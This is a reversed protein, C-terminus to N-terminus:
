ETFRHRARFVVITLVVLGLGAALVLVASTPGALVATLSRALRGQRQGLINVFFIYVAAASIAAILVLGRVIVSAGPNSISFQLNFFIDMLSTVIFLLGTMAIVRSIFGPEPWGKGALLSSLVVQGMLSLVFGVLIAQRYVAIRGIAVPVLMMRRTSRTKVEENGAFIGLMALSFLLILLLFRELGGLSVNVLSVILFNAYLIIFLTTNYGLDAKVLSWIQSGASATKDM